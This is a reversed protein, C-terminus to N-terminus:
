LILSMLIAAKGDPYYKQRYGDQQFKMKRYFNIAAFNEEHVELWIKQYNRDNRFHHIMNEFLKQMHGGKLLTADTMTMDIEFTHSDTQRGAVFAVLNEEEFIGFFMDRALADQLQRDSWKLGFRDYDKSVKHSELIRKIQTSEKESLGRFIM